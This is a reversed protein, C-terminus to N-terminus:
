GIFPYALARAAADSGDESFAAKRSQIVTLM